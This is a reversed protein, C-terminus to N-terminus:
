EAGGGGGMQGDVWGEIRDKGLEHMCGELWGNIIRDRDRERGEIFADVLGDMGGERVWGGIWGDLWGDGRVRWGVM